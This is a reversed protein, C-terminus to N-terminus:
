RKNKTSNEVNSNYSFLLSHVKQVSQLQDTEKNGTEMEALTKQNLKTCFNDSFHEM